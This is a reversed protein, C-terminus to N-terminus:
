KLVKDKGKTAISFINLCVLCHKVRNGFVKLEDFISQQMDYKWSEECDKTVTDFVSKWKQYNKYM